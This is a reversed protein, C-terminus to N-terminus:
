PQSRGGCDTFDDHLAVSLKGGFDTWFSATARQATATVVDCHEFSSPAVGASVLAGRQATVGNSVAASVILHPHFGRAARAPAGLRDHVPIGLSRRTVRLGIVRRNAPLLAHAVSAGAPTAQVAAAWTVPDLDFGALSRAHCLNKLATLIQRNSSTPVSACEFKNDIHTAVARLTPPSALGEPQRLELSQIQHCIGPQNLASIVPDFETL